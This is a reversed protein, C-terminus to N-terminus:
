QDFKPNYAYYLRSLRERKVMFKDEPQRMRKCSGM